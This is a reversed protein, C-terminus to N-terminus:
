RSNVARVIDILAANVEDESKADKVAQVKGRLETDKVYQNLFTLGQKILLLVELIIAGWDKV